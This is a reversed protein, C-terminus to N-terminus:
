SFLCGVIRFNIVLSKDPLTDVSKPWGMLCQPAFYMALSYWIAVPILIAKVAPNIRARIFIYCIMSALILFSVMLGTTGIIM